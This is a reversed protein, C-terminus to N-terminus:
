SNFCYQEYRNMILEFDSNPIDSSKWIGINKISISPDFFTKKKNVNHQNKEIKLYDFVRLIEEEYSTVLKEFQVVLYDTSNIDFSKVMLEFWKIFQNVDSHAIWTVNNQVAFAYVDRPDRYVVINKCEPIYERYKSVNFDQDCLLQDTVIIEKNNNNLYNFLSTMFYSSLTRYEKVTMQKLFFISPNSQTYLLHNNFSTNELSLETISKFFDYCLWRVNFDDRFLSFSNLYSIFRNIVADNQFINNTAVFNEIEFLGGSLRLLNLEVKGKHDIGLTKANEDTGLVECSDVECLLDLIAGSGSYGLGEVSVVTSYTKKHNTFLIGNEKKKSNIYQFYQEGFLNPNRRKKIGKYLGYPLLELILDRFRMDM